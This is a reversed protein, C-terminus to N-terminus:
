ERRLVRKIREAVKAFRKTPFFLLAFVLNVSVSVILFRYVLDLLGDGQVLVDLLRGCGFGTVLVILLYLFLQKYYDGVSKEFMMRYSMAPRALVFFIRSVITGVYVGTLGWLKAGIVSVVLNIIAQTFSIWKDKQFSGFALRVDNYVSSQGMLYCNLVILFFVFEDIIYEEGLWLRIFPPILYYFGIACFGYLWFNIFNVEGFVEGLKQKTSTAILNGFGSVLNSFILKVMATVGVLLMSYNSIYGVAMIGQETLSSIIINDTQYVAVSSFQHFALGKVESHIPKKEEPSLPKVPREKLIPFKRNLYWNLVVRSTILAGTRIALYWLYNKTVVIVVTQVVVIILNSVFEYNTNIYNMQKANALSYKYSVFYEVVTNLLFFVYFLRLEGVSINQADRVLYPLFPLLLLGVGLVVFAIRSYIKRYYDLLKIVKEEDEEAVPKYLSFNLAVGFGLEAFSLVNLIESYLGNIGLCENGLWYIFITRSVFTILLTIIKSSMAFFVNKAAYKTRSM